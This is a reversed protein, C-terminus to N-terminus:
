RIYGLSRLREIERQSLEPAQNPTRRRSIAQLILDLDAMMVDCKQPIKDAINNQERADSNIDFLQLSEMSSRQILKFGEKRWSSGSPGWMNGQSLVPRNEGKRDMLFPVLSKGVFAPAPQIGVLECLTPAIDIQRVTTRVSLGQAQTMDTNAQMFEVGPARIILPIHLLEDYLTHGHEFGKHDYFEEGHDSTIIIVTNAELNRESVGALLRGVEADTYAVEGNHLKELRAVKRYDLMVLGRRLNIMDNVTGFIYDDSDADRADAFRRRFPQPPDYRLHPDFYHVFLFFPKSSHRDLWRLAAETTAGARRALINSEPVTADVTKFGQTMGFKETLFLVNTIAGTVSGARKFLEAITVADDRLITFSGLHGGAGHQTPYQSTFLSAISPLTWPAHSFAQEFRVANKSFRDIEPTMGATSGYCGLRDARVTDIVILIVNKDPLNQSAKELLYHGGVVLTIIILVIAALSKSRMELM